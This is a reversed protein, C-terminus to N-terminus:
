AAQFSFALQTIFFAFLSVNTEVTNGTSFTEAHAGFTVTSVAKLSM